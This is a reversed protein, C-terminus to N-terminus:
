ARRRQSASAPYARPGSHQRRQDARIGVTEAAAPSWTVEPLNFDGVVVLRCDPPEIASLEDTMKSIATDVDPPRYCVAVVVSVGRLRILLCELIWANPQIQYDCVCFRRESPVPWAGVGPAVIGVSGRITM